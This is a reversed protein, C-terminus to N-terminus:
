NANRNRSNDSPPTAPDIKISDEMITDPVIKRHALYFLRQDFLRRISDVLMAITDNKEESLDFDTDASVSFNLDTISADYRELLGRLLASDNAVKMSDIYLKTIKCTGIYLKNADSNNRTVDKKGCGLAVILLLIPFINLYKM